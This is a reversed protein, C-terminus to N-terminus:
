QTFKRLTLTNLLLLVYRKVTGGIDLGGVADNRPSAHNDGSNSSGLAWYLERDISESLFRVSGDAMSAHVGDAHHSSPTVLNM